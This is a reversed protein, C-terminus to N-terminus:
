AHLASIVAEVEEYPIDCLYAIDTASVGKGLMSLIIHKDREERGEARGEAKGEARAENEWEKLAICMDESEVRENRKERYKDILWNDNLVVGTIYCIQPSVCFEKFYTMAIRKMAEKDTSYKVMSMFFKMDDSEMAMIEEDSMAHPNIVNVPWSPMWKMLEEPVVFMEKLDTACDWADGTYLVATVMPHITDTKKFRSLKEGDTLDKPLRTKQKRKSWKRNNADRIAKVQKQYGIADYNLSRVPMAPDATTQNEIGLGFTYPGHWDKLIDRALTQGKAVREEIQEFRMTSLRSDREELDEPLIKEPFFHTANFLAAFNDPNSLLVAMCIDKQSTTGPYPSVKKVKEKANKRIRKKPSM